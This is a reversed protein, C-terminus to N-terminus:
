LSPPGADIKALFEGMDIIDRADMRSDVGFRFDGVQDTGPIGYFIQSKPDIIPFDFRSITASRLDQPPNEMRSYSSMLRSDALGSVQPLKDRITKAKQNLDDLTRGKTCKSDVHDIRQLHSELDVYTGVHQRVEPNFISDRTLGSTLPVSSRNHSVPKSSLRYNGPTKSIKDQEILDCHDYLKRGYSM